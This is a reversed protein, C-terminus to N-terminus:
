ASKNRQELDIATVLLGNLEVLQSRFGEALGENYMKEDASEPIKTEHYHILNKCIAIRGKIINIM